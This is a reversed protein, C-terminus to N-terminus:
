LEIIINICMVNHTICIEGAFDLFAQVARSTPQDRKWALVSNLKIAPSLPVCTIGDYSRDLQLSISAGAGQKILMATNYFLTHTGVIKIKESYSGLWNLLENKISERKPMFLPVNELDSPKITKKKALPSDSKVFLGWKEEIPIKIFQYQAIDVPELLLGFDLLGRQILEKTNDANGSYIDYKIEPNEKQFATMISALYSMSLLEGCGFSIVGSINQQENSFQSKTKEELDVMEQAYRKLLFGEQTLQIKHSKREFLKTGLEYELDAIQRSLTPQTVHLYDAAKTINEERAVMLFYKLVRLEM